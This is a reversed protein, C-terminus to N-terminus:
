CDWSAHTVRKKKPSDILDESVSPLGYWDSPQCRTDFRGLRLDSEFDGMGGIDDNIGDFSAFIIFRMALFLSHNQSQVFVHATMGVGLEFHSDNQTTEDATMTFETVGASVM